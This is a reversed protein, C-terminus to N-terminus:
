VQSRAAPIICHSLEFFTDADRGAEILRVQVQRAHVAQLTIAILRACHQEVQEFLMWAM